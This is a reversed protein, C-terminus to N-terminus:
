LEGASPNVPFVKGKFPGEAFNRFIVHGVKRAHTSAGIVAVSRPNFFLKM